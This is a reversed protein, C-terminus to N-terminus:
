NDLCHGKELLEGEVKLSPLLILLFGQPQSLNAYEGCFGHVYDYHECFSFSLMLGEHFLEMLGNM